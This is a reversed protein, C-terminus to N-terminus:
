DCPGLDFVGGSVCRGNTCIVGAGFRSCDGAGSGATPILGPFRDPDSILRNLFIFLNGIPSGTGGVSNIFDANAQLNLQNQRAQALRAVEQANEEVQRRLNRLNEDQEAQSNGIIVGRRNNEELNELQAELAQQRRLLEVEAASLPSTTSLRLLLDRDRENQELRRNLNAIIQASAEESGGVFVGRRENEKMNELQARLAERELRLEVESQAGSTTSFRLLQNVRNQNDLVQQRLNALNRDQEAQSDGIIVGRRNNEELNELQARLSRGENVLQNLPDVVQQPGTSSSSQTLQDIKRQNEEVQRRLNALNRDQEAQSDGIIVGRRNNEELNELQNRLAQGQNRLQVLADAAQAPGDEANALRSALCLLGM